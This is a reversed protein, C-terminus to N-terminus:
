RTLRRKKMTSQTTSSSIVSKFSERNKYSTGRGGNSTVPTSDSEVEDSERTSIYRRNNGAVTSVDNEPTSSHKISASRAPSATAFSNTTSAVSVSNTGTTFAIESSPGVTATATHQPTEGPQLGQATSRIGCVKLVRMVYRAVDTGGRESTQLFSIKSAQELRTRLEPSVYPCAKSPKANDRLHQSGMACVSVGFAEPRGPFAVSGGHRVKKRACHVCRLGIQGPVARNIYQTARFLEMSELLMNNYDSLKSREEQLGPLNFYNCILENPDISVHKEILNVKKTTKKKPKHTIKTSTTTTTDPLLMRRKRSSSPGISKPKDTWDSDVKLLHRQQKQNTQNSLISADVNKSRERKKKFVLPKNTSLIPAYTLLQVTDNESKSKYAAVEIKNEQTSRAMAAKAKIQQVCLRYLDNRVLNTVKSHSMEKWQCHGFKCDIFRGPPSLSRVTALVRKVVVFKQTSAADFFETQHKNLIRAYIQNGTYETSRLHAGGITSGL